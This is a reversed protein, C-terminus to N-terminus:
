ASPQYEIDFRLASGAVGRIWRSSTILASAFRFDRSRPTSGFRLDRPSGLDRSGALSDLIWWRSDVMSFGADLIWFGSDLIWCRSDLMSFGSDLMSYGADLILLQAHAM